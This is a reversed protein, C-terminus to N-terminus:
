PICRKSNSFISTAEPCGSVSKFKNYFKDAMGVNDQIGDIESVINNNGPRRRKVEKLIKKCNRSKYKEGIINNSIKQKNKKCYNLANIFLKRTDKM